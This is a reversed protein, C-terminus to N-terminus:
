ASKATRNLRLASILFFIGGVTAYGALTTLSATPTAAQLIFTTGALASIAGSLIM